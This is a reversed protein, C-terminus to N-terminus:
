LAGLADALVDVEVSHPFHKLYAGDKDMVYFFSSHDVSYSTPDDSVPVKQAYVRYAKIAGKVEADTGTLGLITPHFSKVYAGLKEPTDREPDVTIFLPAIKEAKPGLLDLAAGLVQLGSPCVDPCNTYGFFVVMPRGAFDKETVHKGTQDVLSFPGGILARGSLAPGPTTASPPMLILIAALIGAIVGVAVALLSKTSM